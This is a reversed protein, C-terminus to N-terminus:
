TDAENYYFYTKLKGYLEIYRGYHMDHQRYVEDLGESKNEAVLNGPGCYPYGM